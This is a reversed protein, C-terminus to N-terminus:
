PGTYIGVAGATTGNRRFAVLMWRGAACTPSASSCSYGQLDNIQANVLKDGFTDAYYSKLAGNGYRYIGYGYTTGAWLSGDHPDMALASINKIPLQADATISGYANTQVLGYAFSSVWAKGDGTAAMGSVSDDRRNGPGPYNVTCEGTTSGVVPTCEPVPDKWIDLRDDVGCTVGKYAAGNPNHLTCYGPAQPPQAETDAQAAYFASLGGGNTNGGYTGYHFVTSRNLGGFWVDKSTPDISIGYYADTLYVPSPCNRGTKDTDTACANIAPHSHEYSGTCNVNNRFGPYEGNCTPNGAYSAKLEAFGHNAGVWVKDNAKDWVLRYVSCLRERGGTEGGVVDPGSFIDYHVVLIGAGSLTVKDADGSKYVAPDGWTSPDTTVACTGDPNKVNCEWNWANECNPRGQYGVYVTGTPGGAVSIVPTAALSPHTDAPSGDPVGKSRAVADNLYGYPHLGDALGFKRFTGSLQPAAATGLNKMLFLGDAGGAVWLNGGEDTAVGYVDAPGGNQPGYFNWGPSSPFVITGADVGADPTGGDTGPGADSGGDTGPGADVGGDTSVDPTQVIKGGGGCAWVLAAVAGAAVKISSRM